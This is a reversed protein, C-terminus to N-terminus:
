DLAARRIRMVALGYLGVCGVGLLALVGPANSVIPNGYWLLNAPFVFDRMTLSFLDPRYVYLSGPVLTLTWAVIAIVLGYYSERVYLFLYNLLCVLFLVLGIIIACSWLFQSRDFPGIIHWVSLGVIALSAAAVFASNVLIPLFRARLYAVPTIPKSLFLSLYGEEKPLVWVRLLDISGVLLAIVYAAAYLNLLAIDAWTGVQLARQFFRPIVNPMHPLALATLIALSGTYLVAYLHDPRKAQDWELKRFERLGDM